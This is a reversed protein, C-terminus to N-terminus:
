RKLGRIGYHIHATHIRHVAEFNSSGLMLISMNLGSGDLYAEGQGTSVGDWYFEGWNDNEDYSGGAAVLTEDALL